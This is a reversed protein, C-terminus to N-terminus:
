TRSRKSSRGKAAPGQGKRSKAAPKPRVPKATTAPKVPATTSAAPRVPRPATTVVGTPAPAAPASTGGDGLRDELYSVLDGVTRLRPLDADPIELDFEEEVKFMLEIADLSNLGLDERLAQDRTIGVHERKLERALASLVKDEVAAADTM